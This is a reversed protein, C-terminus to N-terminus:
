HYKKNYHLLVMNLSHYENMMNKYVSAISSCAIEVQFIINEYEEELSALITNDMGCIHYKEKLYSLLRKHHHAGIDTDLTLSNSLLCSLATVEAEPTPSFSIKKNEAWCDLLLFSQEITHFIKEDVNGKLVKHTIEQTSYNYIDKLYLDYDEMNEVNFSLSIKGMNHLLTSLETIDCAAPSFNLISSIKRSLQVAYTTHLASYENRFDIAFILLLLYDYLQKETFSFSLTYEEIEKHYSGSNLSDVLNYKDNTKQFWRIDQETFVSNEYGELFPLLEKTDNSQLFLDVRDALYLIRTLRRHYDSIPVSYYQANCQHHYLIINAYDQLPSFTQFLLYGFVAHEMSDDCDFSLMSDIEAEKYAGIDHLLGLMFINQKEESSIEPKDEFMKMLIYSVREGHDILRPNTHHFTHRILNITNILTEKM